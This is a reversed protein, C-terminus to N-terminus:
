IFENKVEQIFSIYKSEFAIVVKLIKDQFEFEDVSDMDSNIKLKFFDKESDKIFYKGLLNISNNLTLKVDQVAKKLNESIFKNETEHLYKEFEKLNNIQDNSYCNNNILNKMLEKLNVESYIFLAKRVINKDNELKKCCKEYFSVKRKYVVMLFIAIITTYRWYYANDWLNNFLFDYSNVGSTALLTIDAM